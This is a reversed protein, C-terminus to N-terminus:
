YAHWSPRSATILEKNAIFWDALKDLAHTEDEAVISDFHLDHDMCRMIPDAIVTHGAVEDLVVFRMFSSTNAQPALHTYGIVIADSDRMRVMRANIDQGSFHGSVKSM